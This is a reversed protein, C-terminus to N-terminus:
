GKGESGKMFKLAKKLGELFPELHDDFVFVREQKFKGSVRRSETIILYKSGKSSRKVDFFFTRNGGKVKESFIENGVETAM